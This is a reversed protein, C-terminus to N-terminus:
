VVKFKKLAGAKQKTSKRKISVPHDEEVSKWPIDPVHFIQTKTKNSRDLKRPRGVKRKPKSIKAIKSSSEDTDHSASVIKRKRQRSQGSREGGGGDDDDDDDDDDVTQWDNVRNLFNTRQLSQKSEDFLNAIDQEPSQERGDNEDDSVEWHLSKPSIPSRSRNAFQRYETARSDSRDPLEHPTLIPPRDNINNMAEVVANPTLIPPPPTEEVFDPSFQTASKASDSPQIEKPQIQVALNSPTPTPTYPVLVSDDIEGIETSPLASSSTSEVSAATDQLQAAEPRPTQAPTHFDNEDPPPPPQNPQSNAGSNEKYEYLSRLRHRLEYNFILQPDIKSKYLQYVFDELGKVPDRRVQTLELLEALNADVNVTGDLRYIYFNEDFSKNTLLAIFIKLIRSLKVLNSTQSGGGLQNENLKNYPLIIYKKFNNM